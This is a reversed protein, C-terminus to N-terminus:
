IKKLCHDDYKNIVGSVVSSAAFWVKPNSWIGPALLASAGIGVAVGLGLAVVAGCKTGGSVLGMKEISLEKM